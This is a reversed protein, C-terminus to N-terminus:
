HPAIQVVVQFMRWIEPPTPHCIKPSAKFFAQCTQGAFKHIPTGIHGIETVDTPL